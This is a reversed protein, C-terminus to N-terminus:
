LNILMNEIGKVTENISYKRIHKEANNGMKYLKFLNNSYKIILESLEIINGKSFIDGTVGSIILDESCGVENSVIAPLRCAMAENIVLGWTEGADSPLVIVDSISYITPLESQNIFGLIEANINDKKINSELEYRLDGEGVLLGFINPNKVQAKKIAYLFDLPRKKSIFKGVFLFVIYNNRINYKNRIVTKKNILEDSKKKFFENDICHPSLFIKKTNAGYYRFYEKSRKGVALCADFRSIFFKYFPYKLIKIFFPRKTNLQSDGRVVIPTGSLKCSIIAQWFSKLYWGQIIFADFNNEIIISNIEPTNCGFFSHTNPEKSINKLFKYQFGDLLDIDWDFEVGFGARSQDKKTQKHCYYVTLNINPQKNLAKYIPSYYQIPHTTLIGIRYIKNKSM